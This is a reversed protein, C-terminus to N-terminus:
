PILLPRVPIGSPRLPAERPKLPTEPAGLPNRAAFIVHIAIYVQLELAELSTHKSLQSLTIYIVRSGFTHFNPTM